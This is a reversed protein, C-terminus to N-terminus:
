SCKQGTLIRSNQSGRVFVDGLVLKIDYTSTSLMIIAFILAAEVSSDSWSNNLNQMMQIFQDTQIKKLVKLAITLSSSRVM